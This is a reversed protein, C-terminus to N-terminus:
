LWRDYWEFAIDQMKIDFRHGGPFFRGSYLEPREMKSYIKSIKDNAERQGEIAFLEDDECYQVMVPNGGSLTILDPLDLCNSLYPLHVMWTHHSINHRVTQAFTTMFGSCVACKIRSDMGSLFITREGGGSLGGCGVRHPDVEERTLLYDLARMDEYLMIGPWTTGAMFLSKAIMSEHENSFTNYTEIYERSEKEKGKITKSFQSTVYNRRHV